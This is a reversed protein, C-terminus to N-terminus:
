QREKMLNLFSQREGCVHIGEKAIFEFVPEASGLRRIESETYLLPRVESGIWLTAHATLELVQADWQTSSTKDPQIVFLDVDSGTSMQDRAASGFICAFIPPIDWQSMENHLRAFFVHKLSALQVILEAGLHERNLRYLHARSVSLEEVIGVSILRKLTKRIGEDSRGPILANITHVAFWEQAGALM